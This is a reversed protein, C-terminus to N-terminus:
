IPKRYDEGIVVRADFIPQAQKESVIENNLGMAKSLQKIQNLRGSYDVIYTEKQREGPFNDIQLVDVQLLGKQNQERLFHTLEAAVGKKGSGNLVELTLPRDEVALPARDEVPEAIPDSVKKAASKKKKTIISTHRVNFDTVELRTAAMAFLMFEAPRINTRKDHLASLYDWLFSPVLLPNYRWLTLNTKFNEWYDDRKGQKPKYYRVPVNKIGDQALLDTASEMLDKPNKKRKITNLAVKRTSPNYAFTMSPQTLIAAYVPTDQKTALAAVIPNQFQVFVAWGTLALLTILLLKGILRYVKGSSEM